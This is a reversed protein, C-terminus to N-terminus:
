KEELLHVLFELSGSLRFEVEELPGVVKGKIDDPIQSESFGEVKDLSALIMVVSNPHQIFSPFPRRCHAGQRPDLRIGRIHEPVVKERLPDLTHSFQSLNGDRRHLFPLRISTIPLIQQTKEDIGSIGIGIFRKWVAFDFSLGQCLLNGNRARLSVVLSIAPLSVVLLESVWM